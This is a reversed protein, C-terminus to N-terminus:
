ARPKPLMVTEELSEESKRRTSSPTTHPAGGDDGGSGGLGGGGGDSSMWVRGNNTRRKWVRTAAVTSVKSVAPYRVLIAPARATGSSITPTATAAPLMTTVVSTPVALLGSENTAATVSM